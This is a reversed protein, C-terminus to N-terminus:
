RDALQYGKSRLAERASRIAAGLEAPQSLSELAVGRDDGDYIRAGDPDFIAFRIRQDSDFVETRCSHPRFANTFADVIQKRTLRVAM